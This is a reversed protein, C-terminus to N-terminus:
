RAAIEDAKSLVALARDDISYGSRLSRQYGAEAIATREDAHARFHEIKAIMEEVDGFLACEQDEVFYARVEDTREHLMFGACAPIHFTRSTVLDGSSAGLGIEALFGLNIDSLQIAKAYEAGLVPRRMIRGTLASGAKEWQNGWIKLSLDPMREVLAELLSQKKPSWTGIFSVDCAYRARDSDDCAFKIHTEPDFGHALFSASTVGLRERLDDLGFTKTTFIWDYHPMAEPIHRGHAFFSVDPWWLITVAGADKAARIAGSTVMHGKCVFVLRPQLDRILTRFDADFDAQIWPTLLRRAGKLLRSRWSFGNYTSDSLVTVSHGM